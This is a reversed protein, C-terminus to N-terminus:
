EGTKMYHAIRKWPRFAINAVSALILAFCLVMHVIYMSNLQYIPETLYTVAGLVGALLYVINMWLRTPKKIGFFFTVICCVVIMVPMLVIDAIEWEDKEASKKASCEPCAGDWKVPNEYGCEKCVFTNYMKEFYKTMDNGPSNPTKKNEPFWTMGQISIERETKTPSTEIADANTWYPLLQMVFIVFLLVVCIYNLIPTARGATKIM